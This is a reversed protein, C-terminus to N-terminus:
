VNEGLPLSVKCWGKGMRCDGNLQYAVQRFIPLRVDTEEKFEQFATTYFFLALHSPEKVLEILIKEGSGSSCRLYKKLETFFTYVVDPAVLVDCELLHPDGLIQYQPDALFVQLYKELHDVARPQSNPFLYGVLAM